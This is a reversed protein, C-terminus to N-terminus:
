QNGGRRCDNLGRISWGLVFGVVLSFLGIFMVIFSLFEM